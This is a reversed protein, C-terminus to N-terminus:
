KEEEEEGDNGPSMTEQLKQSVERVSFRKFECSCGNVVCCEVREGFIRATSM